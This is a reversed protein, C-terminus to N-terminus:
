LHAICLQKAAQRLARDDGNVPLGNAGLLAILETRDSYGRNALQACRERLLEDKQSACGCCSLGFGIVLVWQAAGLLVRHAGLTHEVSWFRKIPLAVALFACVM